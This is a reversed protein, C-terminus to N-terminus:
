KWSTAQYYANGRQHAHRRDASHQQEIASSFAKIIRQLATREAAALDPVREALELQTAVSGDAFGTREQALQVRALAIGVVNSLADLEAHTVYTPESDFKKMKHGEPANTFRKRARLLNAFPM